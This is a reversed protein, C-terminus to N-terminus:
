NRNDLAIIINFFFTNSFSINSFTTNIITKLFTTKIVNSYHPHLIKYILILKKYFM